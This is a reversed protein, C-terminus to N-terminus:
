TTPPQPHFARRTQGPQDTSWNSAVTTLAQGYGWYNNADPAGPNQSAVGSWYLTGLAQNATVNLTVAQSSTSLGITYFGVPKAGLTFGSSLGGTAAM